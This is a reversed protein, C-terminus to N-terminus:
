LFICYTNLSIYIFTYEYKCTYRSTGGTQTKNGKATLWRSGEWVDWPYDKLDIIMFSQLQEHDYGMLTRRKLWRDKNHWVSPWPTVERKMPSQYESIMILDLSIRFYWSPGVRPDCRSTCWGRPDIIRLVHGIHLSFYSLPLAKLFSATCRVLRSRDIVHEFYVQINNSVTSVGVHVYVYLMYIYINSVM